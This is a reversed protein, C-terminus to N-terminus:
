FRAVIKPNQGGKKQCDDKATKANHYPHNFCWGVITGTGNDSVAIAGHTIPFIPLGHNAYNSRASTPKNSRQSWVIKPDTGGKAKCESIAQASIANFDAASDPKYVLAWKGNSAVALAQGAYLKQTLVSSLGVVILTLVLKSRM